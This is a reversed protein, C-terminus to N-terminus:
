YYLQVIYMYDPVSAFITTHKVFHLGTHLSKKAIDTGIACAFFTPLRCTTTSRLLYYISIEGTYSQLPASQVLYIPLFHMVFDNMRYLM